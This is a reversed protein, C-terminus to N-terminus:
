RPLVHAAPRMSAHSRMAGGAEEATAYAAWPQQHPRRHEAGGQVAKPRWPEVGRYRHRRKFGTKVRRRAAAHGEAAAAAAHLSRGDDSAGARGPSCERRHGSLGSSARAVALAAEEATAFCRPVDRARRAAPEGQVAQHPQSPRVLAQLGDQQRRAAAGASSSEAAAAAHAAAATHAQRRPGRRPRTRHPHRRPAAASSYNLARAVALAAGEATATASSNAVPREEADGPVAQEHKSAPSAAPTCSREDRQGRAAADAVEAAAAAHVEEATADVAADAAAAAAAEAAKAGAAKSCAAALHVREACRGGDAGIRLLHCSRRGRPREAEAVEGLLFAETLESPPCVEESLLGGSHAAFMSLIPIQGRLRGQAPDPAHRRASWRTAGDSTDAIRTSYDPIACVGTAPRYLGRPAMM